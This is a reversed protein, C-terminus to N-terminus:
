QMNGAVRLMDAIWNFMQSPYDASLLLKDILDRRKTASADALFAQTEAATPIRGAIDLYIRGIVTGQDLVDYSEVSPHWVVTKVPRFTIGFMKSSAALVSEKVLAYPAQLNKAAVYLEDERM